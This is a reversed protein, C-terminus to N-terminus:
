IGENVKAFKERACEYEESDEQCMQIENSPLLISPPLSLPLCKKPCDEFNEEIFTLGLCEYFPITRCQRKEPLFNYRKETLGFETFETKQSIKFIQHDGDNWAQQTIGYSNDETTFLIQLIPIRESQLDERFHIALHHYYYSPRSQDFTQIKYCKGNYLTTLTTLEANELNINVGESLVRNESKRDDWGSIKSINFDLGLRFSDELPQFCITLAPITDIPAERRKFSTDGALYQDFVSWTTSVALIILTLFVIVKVLSFIKSTSVKM